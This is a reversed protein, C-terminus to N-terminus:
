VVPRRDVAPADVLRQVWRAFTDPHSIHIGHGVGAFEELSGGTREAMKAAARRLHPPGMEARGVVTRGFMTTRSRGDAGDAALAPAADARRADALEAVLAPGEARRAERESNRIRDWVRDGVMARYFFEAAAREGHERAVELADAGSTHVESEEWPMPPEFAGIVQVRPVGGSPDPQGPVVAMASAAAVVAVLGGFSHGVIAVSEAGSWRAVTALDDAHGAVGQTGPASAGYGRRDYAIVDLSGLRRMVRGFSAARDMAGHVLVVTPVPSGNREAPRRRTVALGDM